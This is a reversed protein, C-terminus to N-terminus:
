CNMLSSTSTLLAQKLVITCIVESRARQLFFNPIFCTPWLIDPIILTFILFLPFVIYLKINNQNKGKCKWERERERERARQLNRSPFLASIQRIGDMIKQWKLERRNVKSYNFLGGEHAQFMHIIYYLSSIYCLFLAFLCINTCYPYQHTCSWITASLATKGTM